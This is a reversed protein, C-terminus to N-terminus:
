QVTEEWWDPLVSEFATYREETAGLEIEGDPTRRYVTHILTPETKPGKIATVVTECWLQAPLNAMTGDFRENLIRNYEEYFKEPALAAQIGFYVCFNESRLEMGDAQTLVAAPPFMRFTAAVVTRLMARADDSLGDKLVLDRRHREGKNEYPRLLFSLHRDRKLTALGEWHV